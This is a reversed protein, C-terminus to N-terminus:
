FIEVVFEEKNQLLVALYRFPLLSASVSHQALRCFISLRNMPCFGFQVGIENSLWFAKKQSFKLPNRKLTDGFSIKLLMFWPSSGYRNSKGM